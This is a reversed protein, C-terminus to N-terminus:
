PLLRMRLASIITAPEAGSYPATANLFATAAGADTRMQVKVLSNETVRVMSCLSLHLGANAVTPHWGQAGCIVTAGRVLRLAAVGGTADTRRHQAQAHILWVGKTLPLYPGDYWTGTTTLAVDATLEATVDAMTDGMVAITRSRILTEAERLLVARGGQDAGRTGLLVDVRGDRFAQEPTKRDTM